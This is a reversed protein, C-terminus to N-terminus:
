RAWEPRAAKLREVIEPHRSVLNEREGPDKELNALFLERDQASMIDGPVPNRVNRLLKWPGQRVAWADGLQWYLTEHPSAANADKLITTISRGDIDEDLLEAGCLEAITPLWDIAHVM